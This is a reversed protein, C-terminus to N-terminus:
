ASPTRMRMTPVIGSRRGWGRPSRRDRMRRAATRARAQEVLRETDKQVVIVEDPTRQCAAFCLPLLALLLLISLFRKMM